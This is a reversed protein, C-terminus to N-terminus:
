PLPTLRWVHPAGALHPMAVDAFETMAPGNLHAALRAGSAWSEYFLIQAPADVSEYVEYTLCGAALRTGAILAPLAKRIQPLGAPVVPVSVFLIVATESELMEVPYGEMTDQLM